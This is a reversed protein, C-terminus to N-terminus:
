EQNRRLKELAFATALDTVAEKYDDIESHLREICSRMGKIQENKTKRKPYRKRYYLSFLHLGVAFLIAPCSLVILIFHNFRVWVEMLDLFM